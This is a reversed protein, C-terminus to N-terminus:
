ADKPLNLAALRENVLALGVNVNVANDKLEGALRADLEVAKLKDPMCLEVMEGQHYRVRQALKDQLSLAGVPTRVVDALFSRKEALSLVNELYSAEKLEALYSAMKPMRMMICVAHSAGAQTTEPTGYGAQKYAEYHPLGLAINHVLRVQKASLGSKHLEFNEKRKARAAAIRARQLARREPAREYLIEDLPKGNVEESM